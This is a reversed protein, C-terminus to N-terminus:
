SPPENLRGTGGAMRGTGACRSRSRRIFVRIRDAGAGPIDNAEHEGGTLSRVFDRVRHELPPASTTMVGYLKPLNGVIEHAFEPSM